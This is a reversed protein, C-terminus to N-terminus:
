SQKWFQLRRLMGPPASPQADRKPANPPEVVTGWQEQILQNTDRLRGCVTVAIEKMLKYASPRLNRRLFDFETKDLRFLSTKSIARVTATRKGGDVLTIEGLIDMTEITTLEIRGHPRDLYVQLVGNQVVFAADAPDGEQFLFDGEQLEMPQIARVVEGLEEANLQSFLPIKGFFDLLHQSM